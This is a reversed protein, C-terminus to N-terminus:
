ENDDKEENRVSESELPPRIREEVKLAEANKEWDGGYSERTIQENTKWGHAVLITNANAEKVPDLHTQAPGDWRAGCWASRILPDTFFGPAKIRGKAVAESLWMEYVPQCFKDVVWVRRMKFAEWAEELAGKAASYSSNFEKMLVDYPLELGAGILRCITKTFVEFGASPINPSGFRVDEGEQLHIVEGPGMEHENDSRSVGEGPNVEDGYLDGEGAENFPIATPDTTTVVWATYFSQILASMLESETYRRLQLLPEIVQALYTVGRYQDPREADMIHLVNPMGTRQGFAEVRTWKTEEATIQLPYTSRFHYAVIRGCSDVEVGDHIKNGNEPNVGDTIVLSYGAASTAPTAVRDAEVIHLRLSYPNVASADCRKFLAFADGSMLWSKVVLQQLAYFNNLGLADCNAPNSAWMRFEAETKKQWAKAADESLGLLERDIACKMHLGSGVVKTRNTNVASAAIPSAMYLMRGRQRMTYNNWDIDENPASSRAVFGKLARKIKSAGADGYGSAYRKRAPNKSFAGGLRELFNKNKKKM